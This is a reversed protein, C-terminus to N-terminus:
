LNRSNQKKKPQAEIQYSSSSCRHSPTRGPLLADPKGFGMVWLVVKRVHRAAAASPHPGRKGPKPISAEAQGDPSGPHLSCLGSQM